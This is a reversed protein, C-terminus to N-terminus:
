LKGPKFVIGDPAQRRKQIHAFLRLWVYGGVASVISAALISIKAITIFTSHGEFALEAIFISLTFGIGGLLGAGIIHPWQVGHPLKTLRLRVMIWSAGVIGILKGLVLGGAVGLGVLVGESDTFVNMDFAVGANALAFLPVVVFASLPIISKELREAIAGKAGRRSVIPAALGLIVGAISAHVGSSEIAYWMCIGLIVFTTLRLLRVWNLLLIAAFFGGAWLLPVIQLHETYFLAIVAIAGVDDVVMVTLLFLKLRAPVRRGLLALVGIAFATDTTMPTGWGRFGDHGNNFLLYLAIPVAMGGVAAMIPLSAAKISQLEGRVIERKIELSIVLFFIAMLGQNIWHQFSESITWNGLGISFHQQWFEEFPARWVSNTLVIAVLAAALLFKGSIAEDRLLLKVLRSVHGTVVLASRRIKHKLM